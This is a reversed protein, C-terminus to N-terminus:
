VYKQKKASASKIVNMYRKGFPYSFIQIMYKNNFHTALIYVQGGPVWKPLLYINYIFLYINYIFLHYHFYQFM